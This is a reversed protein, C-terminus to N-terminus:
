RTIRVDQGDLRVDFGAGSVAVRRLTMGEPVGPVELRLTVLARALASMAASVFAPGGVDVTEPEVLLRGGEASVRGTARVLVDRGLITAPREVGALGGSVAYLRVDDGLQASVTDFPLTADLVLTDARLGDPGFRIGSGTAEVDVLDGDSSVIERSSLDVAGLWTEDAALDDPPPVRAGTVPPSPATAPSAGGGLSVVLAVGALVIVVLTAAVGALFQKM